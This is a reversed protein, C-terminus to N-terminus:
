CKTGRGMTHYALGAALCEEEDLIAFPDILSTGRMIKGMRRVDLARFENWPTMIVVVDAGECTDLANRGGRLRPHVATSAPVAPDFAAVRFRRLDAILRLSPSNKTSATDQKYALGLIAVSSDETPSPLAEHVKKLVWNKRHASNGVWARVVCDDAGSAAALGMVTQLDRELNGGSIGLGPQLYAHAGIRRDLRLAPVIERWDAGSRECIEALTNAVSISSVLCCNIAIKALEASEYRMPLVPCNFARYFEALTPPVPADADPLGVIFREPNLAREVAAGFILTEVQYLLRGTSSQRRTFGPPVQSLVITVREPADHNAALRLLHEVPTLDSIGREDTPVDPAVYLIDCASLDEACDSYRIRSANRALMTDLGPEMVHLRNERLRGVLQPDPDFCIVRFGREAAAAASNLGLHTM